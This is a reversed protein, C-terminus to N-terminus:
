NGPLHRFASLAEQVSAEQFPDAKGLHNSPYTFYPLYYEGLYDFVQNYGDSDYYVWHNGATRKLWESPHPWNRGTGQLYKIEGNLNFQFCHDPTTIEALRGYRIPYSVKDYKTAAPINLKLDIKM